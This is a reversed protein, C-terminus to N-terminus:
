TQGPCGVCAPSTSECCTGLVGFGCTGAVCQICSWPSAPCTGACAVCLGASVACLASAEWNCINNLQKDNPDGPATSCGGCPDDGSLTVSEASVEEPIMGNVSQIVPRVAQSEEAASPDVSMRMAASMVGDLSSDLRRSVLGTRSRHNYITVVSENVGNEYQLLAAYVEAVDKSPEVVSTKDTAQVFTSNPIDKLTTIGSASSSIFESSAVNALDTSELHLRVEAMLEDGSLETSSSVGTSTPKPPTGPNALAPKARGAVLALGAVVAGGKLFLERPIKTSRNTNRNTGSRSSDLQDGGLISLVRLTGKPGLEKSMPPGMHWGAYAKRQGGSIRVLTPAWKADRGLLEERWLTMERSKLPLLSIRDGFEAELRSAISSCKMCNADYGLYLANQETM